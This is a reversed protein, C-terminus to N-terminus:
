DDETEPNCDQCRGDDTEECAECWWDCEPCLFIHLDIEHLIAQDDQEEETLVDYLAKCTGQLEEVAQQGRLQKDETTPGM